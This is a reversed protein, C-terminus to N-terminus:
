MQRFLANIFQDKVYSDSLSNYHMTMGYLFFVETILVFFLIVANHRLIHGMHPYHCGARPPEALGGARFRHRAYAYMGGWLLASVAAGAVLITGFVRFAKARLQNNKRQVEEDQQKIQPTQSMNLVTTLMGATNISNNQATEVEMLLEYLVRRINLYVTRKEVVHVVTFFFVCVFLSFLAVHLLLNIVGHVYFNLVSCHRAVQSMSNRYLWVGFLTVAIVVAVAITMTQTFQTSEEEKEKAM